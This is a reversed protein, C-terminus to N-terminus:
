GASSKARLTRPRPARHCRLRREQSRVPACDGIAFVNNDRTTQLTSEVVLQKIRNIELGDLRGLVEPARIGAAWVILESAVFTGDALKFGNPTV